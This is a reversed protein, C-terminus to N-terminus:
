LLQVQLGGNFGGLSKSHFVGLEAMVLWTDSFPILVNLRVGWDKNSGARVSVAAPFARCDVQAGLSVFPMKGFASTESITTFSDRDATVPAAATVEPIFSKSVYAGLNLAFIENLM